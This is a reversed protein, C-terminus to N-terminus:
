RGAEGVRRGALIEVREGLDFYHDVPALAVDPFLASYGAASRYRWHPLDSRQTTNEILLLLGQPRLVRALERTAAALENPDTIGGLVLCVFVVDTSAEPLPIRGDRMQRFDVAATRPALELLAAVPDVGLARGGIASALLATFRGSGCGFDLAFREDGRLRARLVPLIRETQMRTVAEIEGGRRALHM